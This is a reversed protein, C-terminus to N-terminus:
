SNNIRSIIKIAQLTEGVDHVRLVNAGKAIAIASAAITGVLRQQVKTNLIKGIFSKRSLGLFIPLGLSKFKNLGSIIALNDELRKGFGIGPDIFIRRCDIGKDVCYSIRERFFDILEDVVDKYVPKIQMTRPTGRMHMLVCGLKYSSILKAMKSDGRLATIDNIIDAGADAVSEAVSYKYTDVSIMIKKYEKRIAKLVPLLREIEEKVKIGKSFPRSSEAGLDIIKAGKKVMADCKRLALEKLQVSSINSKELLGDGSFSDATLNIIGCVLPKKIRFKKNRAQFVFDKKQLNYLCLSIEKSIRNLNFPQNELKECLKKLQSLSGFILITTEIDKLLARREIAADTGLSLLHQKIINAEWSRIGSIKLALYISKSSLIRVGEMSVGLSSILSAAEREDDLEVPTIKVRDFIKKLTKSKPM